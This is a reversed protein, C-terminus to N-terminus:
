VNSDEKYDEGVIYFYEEKTIVGSKVADGVMKKSWLGTDYNKKVRNFNM